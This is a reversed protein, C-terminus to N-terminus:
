VIRKFDKELEKKTMSVIIPRGHPCTNINPLELVDDILAKMEEDNLTHNAKVASRCAITYLARDERAGILERKSADLQSILEVMLESIDEAAMDQPAARVIITNQGFEEAEFGLEEFIKGNEEFVAYEAASLTVSVPMLLIQPSVVGNQMSKKLEEYKIREHAAHQDIILMDDGREAIIYTRFIQGVIKYETKEADQGARLDARESQGGERYAKEAASMIDDEGLRYIPMGQETTEVPIVKIQSVPPIPQMLAREYPDPEPKQIEEEIEDAEDAEDLKKIEKFIDERAKKRASIIEGTSKDVTIAGYGSYPREDSHRSKLRTQEFSETRMKFVTSKEEEPSSKEITPIQITRYLANKVGFYVAEYVSKEESFKVELKTPHVNIDIMSPHIQLNLVAMPFKGIMVQNKYAEEVARMILPSKVYRGNIYFSQFSRNPRSVEGRGAAGVVRIGNHEYDVDIVAKAYEKGYVTYICDRLKNNGSSFLQEKKGNIFKFSIEPHALIFRSMIDSIYGAETKNSKLFKMRAPTNYFLRDVIVTTGVPAGASDSLTIEGGEARVCTGEDLDKTRTIIESKSVAAISSLAEGRFGLTYIAELDSDTRVKSTAHRLFAIQADERSMGSGNDTVRMHAVGGEQIEVTISTAGADISNEVLEKIVSAPREVVEGAAIKDSVETDLVNIIGM